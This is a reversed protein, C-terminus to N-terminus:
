AGEAGGVRGKTELLVREIEERQREDGEKAARKAVGGEMESITERVIRGIEERRSGSVSSGAMGVRRKQLESLPVELVKGRTLIVAREIVSALERVKGPWEWEELGKLAAAPIAEIQKEM